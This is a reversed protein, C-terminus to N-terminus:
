DSKETLISGIDEVLQGMWACTARREYIEKIVKQADGEFLVNKINLEVVLEMDRWLASAEVLEPSGIFEKSVCMSLLLEGKHNRAVIGMGLRSNIKDITADFNIKTVGEGPLLWKADRRRQSNVERNQENVDEPKQFIKLNSLAIQIVKSPSDFKGEIVVRNRKSWLGRLIVIIEELKTKKFCIQM